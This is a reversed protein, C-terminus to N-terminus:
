HSHYHTLNKPSTETVLAPKCGDEEMQEITVGDVDDVLVLNTELTGPRIYIDNGQANMRKLWSVNKEVEDGAWERHMMKGDRANRIGIQYMACGMAKLQRRTAQLTKDRMVSAGGINDQRGRDAVDGLRALDIIRTTSNDTGSMGGSFSHGLGEVDSQAGGAKNGRYSGRDRGSSSAFRQNCHQRDQNGAEPSGDMDRAAESQEGRDRQHERDGRGDVQGHGAGITGRGRELGAIRALRQSKQDERIREDVVEQEAKLKDLEQNDLAVAFHRDARDTEIGKAEMEVVNPGLHVSPIKDVGQDEYSRHDIREAQGARELHLNAINAWTKRTDELWAKRSKGLDAKRAGGSEASKGKNSARKFWAAPTRSYGDNMRESILIHAHPNVGKGKHIAVTHPLSKGVTISEVFDKTLAENEQATLEVPLAIEVERYLLGNKREYIDASKWYITPKEQAWIPMNGSWSVFVEDNDKSYKETRTIYASKAGGSKGDAKSGVKVSCHYIAM